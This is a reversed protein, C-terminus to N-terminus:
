IYKYILNDFSYIPNKKLWSIIKEKKDCSRFNNLFLNKLIDPNTKLIESNLLNKEYFSVSMNSNRCILCWNLINIYKEFFKESLNTNQCLSIWDLEIGLSLYKEFFAESLNTNQCLYNWNLKIGLSLYRDFFEESINTNQCLLDLSINNGEVIKKLFREVSKRDIYQEKIYKGLKTLINELIMVNGFYLLGEIIYNTYKIDKFDICINKDKKIIEYVDIYKENITIIITDSDNNHNPITILYQILQSDLKKLEETIPIEMKLLFISINIKITM